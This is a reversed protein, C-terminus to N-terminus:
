HSLFFYWYLISIIIQTSKTHCFIILIFWVVNSIEFSFTKDNHLSKFNYDNNRWREKIVNHSLTQIHNFTANFVMVIVICIQAFYSKHCINRFLKYDISVLFNDMILWQFLRCKYANTTIFFFTDCNYKLRLWFISSKRTM